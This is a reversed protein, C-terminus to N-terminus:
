ISCIMGGPQFVPAQRLAVLLRAWYLGTLIIAIAM